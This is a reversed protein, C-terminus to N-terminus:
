ADRLQVRFGHQPELAAQLPVIEAVSDVWATLDGEPLPRSFLYGQARDCGEARLMALAAEDEVGEATVSMGLSRALRIIAAVIARDVPDATLDTVFSRDIKLEDVPLRKVHSLSSHGTGFDDLSVAVGLCRVAALVEGSRKPNALLEGETVELTLRAPAVGHLRLLAEVDEPLSADILNSASLNVAVGLDRGDTTWRGCAALARDLVVLTLDRMLGAQEAAPLFADPYLLGREPHPWRVLAEVGVVRGGAVEVKPQFHVELAGREVAERLEGALVLRERSHVDRAADYVEIGSRTAKAEYMAVDARRLLGAADRAHEPTLAIGVSAELRVHIGSVPLPQALEERLRAALRRAAAEGAGVAVIAFEDGGLRAAAGDSGAARRIRSAAERLLEDGAEHGLTDNFEKFGDLDCLLLAVRPAEAGCATETRRLLARRNALGTLEDTLAERRTLALQRLERVTLVSRLAVAALSGGSLVVVADPLEAWHDAVLLVSALVTTLVPVANTGWLRPESRPVESAHRTAAAFVLFAIAWAAEFPAGAGYVYGSTAWAVAYCADGVLMAVMGAGLWWWAVPPRWGTMACTGAVMGVLVVDALPYALNVAADATESTHLLGNAGITALAAIALAGIVGDMWVAAQGRLLLPRTLLVLGVYLLLYCAVWCPVAAGIGGTLGPDALNLADGATWALIAAAVVLWGARDASMAHVRRAILVAAFLQAGIRALSWGDALAPPTPGPALAVLAPALVLAAAACLPVGLPMSAAVISRRSAM